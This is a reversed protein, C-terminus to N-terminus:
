LAPMQCWFCYTVFFLSVDLNKSSTRTRMNEFMGYGAEIMVQRCLELDVKPRNTALGIYRKGPLNQMDDGDKEGEERRKENSCMICYRQEGANDSGVM